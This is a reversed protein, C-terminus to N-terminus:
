GRARLRGVTATGLGGPGRPRLKLHVVHHSVGADRAVTNVNTFARPDRTEDGRKWRRNRHIAASTSTPPPTAANIANTQVPGFFSVTAKVGCGACIAGFSFVTGNSGFAFSIPSRKM